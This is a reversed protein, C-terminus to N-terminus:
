EKGFSQKLREVPGVKEKQGTVYNFVSRLPTGFPGAFASWLYDGLNLGGDGLSFYEAGERIQREDLKALKNNGLDIIENIIDQDPMNNKGLHYGLTFLSTSDNITKALKAAVEQPPKDKNSKIIAEQEKTLPWTNDSSLHDGIDLALKQNDKFIELENNEAFPARLKKVDNVLEKPAKSFFGRGGINNKLTVLNKGMQQLNDTIKQVAQEESAGNAMEYEAKKYARDKIMPDLSGEPVKAKYRADFKNQLNGEQAVRRGEAEIEAKQRELPANLTDEARKYARDYGNPGSYLEPEQAMLKRAMPDIQNPTARVLPTRATQQGQATTIGEKPLAQGSQTTQGPQLAPKSQAQGGIGQQNIGVPPQGGQGPQGSAIAANRIYPELQAIQAPDAGSQILHAYRGLPTMQQGKESEIDRLGQSLRYREAEKPITEALGKGISTGIRGFINGPSVQFTM